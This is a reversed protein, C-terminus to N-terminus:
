FGGIDELSILQPTFIPYARAKVDAAICILFYVNIELFFVMLSFIFFGESYM